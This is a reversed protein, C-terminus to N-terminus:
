QRRYTVQNITLVGDKPPDTVIDPLQDEMRIILKGGDITYRGSNSRDGQEAAGFDFSAINAAAVPPSDYKRYVRGDASFLYFLLAPKNIFGGGITNVTVKIEVGQYLGAVARGGEVTLAAPARAADVRLSNGVAALYPLLAAFSQQTGASADIIAAYAGAVILVRRHVRVYGTELFTVFMALDAGPVAINMFQPTDGINQEQYQPTIWDRLLSMQFAARIDGTFPRFPYVQLAGNFGIFTYDDPRGTGIQTANAPPTYRLVPVTSQAAADTVALAQLVLIALLVKRM